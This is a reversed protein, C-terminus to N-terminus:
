CSCCRMPTSLGDSRAHLGAAVALLGGGVLLQGLNIFDLMGAAVVGTGIVRAAAYLGTTAAPQMRAALQRHDHDVPLRVLRRELRDARRPAQSVARDAAPLALLAARPGAGRHPLRPLLRHRLLPRGLRTALHRLLAVLRVPARSGTHSLAVTLGLLAILALVLCAVLVGLVMDDMDLQGDLQLGTLLQLSSGDLTGGKKGVTLLGLGSSAFHKVKEALEPQTGTVIESGVAHAPSASLVSPIGVGSAVSARPTGNAAAPPTSAGDGLPISPIGLSSVAM